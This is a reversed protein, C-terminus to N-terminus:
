ASRIIPGFDVGWLVLRASRSLRAAGAHAARRARVFLWLTGAAITTAVVALLVSRLLARLSRQEREAALAETLVQAAQRAVGETTEGAERDVDSEAVSLILRPGVMVATGHATGIQIPHTEVKELPGQTPIQELRAQAIHLREVPSAGAATGRFTIVPRNAVVLTATPTPEPAQAGAGALTACLLLGPLGRMPLM